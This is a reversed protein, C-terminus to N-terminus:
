MPNVASYRVDIHSARRTTSDFTVVVDISWRTMITRRADDVTAEVINFDPTFPGVRLEQGSGLRVQRLRNIAEDPTNGLVGAKAIAQRVDEPTTRTYFTCGGGFLTVVLALTIAMVATRKIQPYKM